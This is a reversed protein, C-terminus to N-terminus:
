QTISQTEPGALLLSWHPASNNQDSISCAMGMRTTASNILQECDTNVDLWFNIAEAATQPGAHISELVISARVGADSVRESTSLGNSGTFSLFNNEAMDRAHSESVQTLTEDWALTIPASAMNNIASGACARQAERLENLIRPARDRISGASECRRTKDCNKGAHCDSQYHVCAYDGCLQVYGDCASILLGCLMVAM